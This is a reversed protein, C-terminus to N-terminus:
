PVVIFIRKMRPVEANPRCEYNDSRYCRINMDYEVMLMVTHDLLKKILIVKKNNIM